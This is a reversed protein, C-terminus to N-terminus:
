GRAPNIHGSPLWDRKEGFAFMASLTALARNATVPHTKGIKSHLKAITARGVTAAKLRGIEPVIYRELYGRYLEATTAKRKLEVEQLYSEALGAFTVADRMKAMAAAPDQGGAVQGLVEKARNRAQEPTLPGYRAIAYFRKPGARGMGRPRYRVFFTKIGTNSVRLGFGPVSADWYPAARPMARDVTEKTLKLRRESM